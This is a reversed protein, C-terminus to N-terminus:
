NFGLPDNELTKVNFKQNALNSAITLKRFNTPLSIITPGSYNNVGLPLSGDKAHEMIQIVLLTFADVLDDHPETGFCVIQNILDTAGNKPFHIQHKSIWHGAIALRDRKSLNGVQIEHADIKEENLQEVLARQYGTGEIFLHTNPYANKFGHLFKKTERFNFRKNTPNNDIFVHYNGEYLYVSASVVATYDAESEKSIALDIGAARFQFYPGWGSPIEKYWDIDKYKILQDDEAVTKLMYEMMWKSYNNIKKEFQKISEMTPFQQPWAIENNDNVLPVFMSKGKIENSEISKQLTSLLSNQHLYNGVLLVKANPGGLPFVESSYLDHTRKRGEKTKVSSSDEIDDGIILDPRHQKYRIGRMSQDISVAMIQADYKSFELVTSSWKNNNEKFPGLDDRLLENSELEAKINAMHIRAQEQTQCVIVVCKKQMIGMIHWLPAITTFLTSKGSNRFTIITAFSCNPDEIIQLMEHQFPAFGCSFYHPFYITAFFTMNKKTLDVRMKPNAIIELTKKNTITMKDEKVLSRHM